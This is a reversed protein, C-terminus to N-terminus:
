TGFNFKWGKILNHNGVIFTGLKVNALKAVVPCKARLLYFLNPHVCDSLTEFSGQGKSIVLKASNFAQLFENSVKNLSTGPINSGNSLIKGYSQVNAEIADEVTVDNLIPSGRVVYTIKKNKLQELLLVDFYIEGTNDGLIMIEDNKDIESLLLDMHDLGLPEKEAMDISHLIESLETVASIGSDIINGAIAYRIALKVPDAADLVKKRLEVALKAATKNANDKIVKYPDEMNLEKRIYAQIEGAFEPPTQKFDMKVMNSMVKKVINERVAEDETFITAAEVAHRVFCPLCDLTIVM